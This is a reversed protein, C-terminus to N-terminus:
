VSLRKFRRRFYIQMAISGAAGVLFTLSIANGAYAWPELYVAAWCVGFVLSWYAMFFVQRKGKTLAEAPVEPLQRLALATQAALIAYALAYLCFYLLTPGRLAFGDASSHVAVFVLLVVVALWIFNLVIPLTKPVFYSAFLRHHFYWLSCVIAFSAVFALVGRMDLTMAKTFQLSAGLQALSFGIVIDSFAELRRVTHEHM